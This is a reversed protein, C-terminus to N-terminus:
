LQEREDCARATRKVRDGLKASSVTSMGFLMSVVIWDDPQTGVLILMPNFFEPADLEGHEADDAPGCFCVQGFLCLRCVVREFFVQRISCRLPAPRLHGARGTEGSLGRPPLTMCKKSMMVLAPAGRNTVHKGFVRSSGSIGMRHALACLALSSSRNI